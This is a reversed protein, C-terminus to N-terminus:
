RGRLLDEITILSTFGIGLKEFAERGGMQRDVVAIVRVAKYGQAELAPLAKLVSGGTSVVDELIICNSEGLRAQPELGEILQGTGHEKAKKRIIFGKWRCTAGTLRNYDLLRPLVAGVLPVVGVEPGGIHPTHPYESVIQQVVQDTVLALGKPDLLLRKCDIYHDSEQGSALKFQGFQIAGVDKMLRALM